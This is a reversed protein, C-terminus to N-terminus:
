EAVLERLEKKLTEGTEDPVNIGFSRNMAKTKLAKDVCEANACIYAGRGNKKGTSDIVFEGEPTHVIRVLEKKPLINGCGICKRLPIKKKNM